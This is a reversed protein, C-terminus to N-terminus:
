EERGKGKEKKTKGKKKRQGTSRKMLINRLISICHCFCPAISISRDREGDPLYKKM